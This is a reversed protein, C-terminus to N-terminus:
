GTEHQNRKLFDIVEDRNLKDLSNVLDLFAISWYIGNM